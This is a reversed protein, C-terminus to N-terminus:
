VILGHLFKLILVSLLHLHEVVLFVHLRHHTVHLRHHTVHLRHHTVYALLLETAIICQLDVAVSFVLILYRLLQSVLYGLIFEWTFYAASCEFLLSIYHFV